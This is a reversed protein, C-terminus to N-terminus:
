ALDINDMSLIYIYLLWVSRRSAIVLDFFYFALQFLFFLFFFFCSRFQQVIQVSYLELLTIYM